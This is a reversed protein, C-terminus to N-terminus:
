GQAGRVGGEGAGAAHAQMEGGAVDGLGVGARMRRVGDQVVRALEGDRGVIMVVGVIDVMVIFMADVQAMRRGDRRGGDILKLEREVVVVVVM